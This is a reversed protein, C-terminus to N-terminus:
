KLTPRLSKRSITFAKGYPIMYYTQVVGQKLLRLLVESDKPDNKDRSNFLAERTRAASLSSILSVEFGQSRLLYALPRHYDGTPELAIKCPHSFSHLYAALSEYDDRTQAMKFRRRRGQPPEVLVENWRKAVDIAVWVWKTSSTAEAM